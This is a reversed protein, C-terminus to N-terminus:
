SDGSITAICVQTSSRVNIPPPTEAHGSRIPGRCCGSEPGRASSTLLPTTQHTTALTATTTLTARTAHNNTVDGVATGGM